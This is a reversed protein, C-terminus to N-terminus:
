FTWAYSVTVVGRGVALSNVTQPASGQKLYNDRGETYAWGLTLKSEKTIAFPLAVGVLWYDGWNKTDPSTPAFQTWKFTGVTGTFALETGLEKLPVSYAANLEYTPGKLVVDYYFKPTLTLGSVTYNFAINPEFTQKYFGASEDASVYTYWTFGPQVSFAENM